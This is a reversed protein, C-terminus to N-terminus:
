KHRPSDTGHTAPRLEATFPRHSDTSTNSSSPYRHAAAPSPSTPRRGPTDAYAPASVAGIFEGRVSYVTRAKLRQVLVSIALTLPYAVLLHVHDTEGNFEVLKVDLEVDGMTHECSTLMADTFLRRRYKTVFVLHAHLLSV